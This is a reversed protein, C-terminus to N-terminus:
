HQANEPKYSSIQSTTQSVVSRSDASLTALAAIGGIYDDGASRKVDEGELHPWASQCLKRRSAGFRFWFRRPIQGGSAPESIQLALFRSSATAQKRPIPGM